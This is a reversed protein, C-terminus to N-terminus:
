FIILKGELHSTDRRIMVEDFLDLDEDRLFTGKKFKLWLGLAVPVLRGKGSSHQVNESLAHGLDDKARLM